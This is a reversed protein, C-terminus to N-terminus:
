TSADIAPIPAGQASGDTENVVFINHLRMLNGMNATTALTTSTGAFFCDRAIGEPNSDLTVAAKTTGVVGVTVHDLELYDIKATDIIGGTVVDGFFTSNKIRVNSAAGELDIFCTVPATKNFFTIDELLCNDGDATISICDVVNFTTSGSCDAAYWGKGTFGNAAINVYATVLDIGPAAFQINEISCGAGTVTIVDDATATTFSPRVSGWGLGIVRVGAIDMTTKGTTEAHGPMVYITDGYKVNADADTATCKNIANDLTDLPRNPDTGSNSSSGSQSDVFFVQGTTMQSGQMPIGINKYAGRFGDAM